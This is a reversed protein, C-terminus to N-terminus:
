LGAGDSCVPQRCVGDQGAGLCLAEASSAPSLLGGLVEQSGGLMAKWTGTSPFARQGPKIEQELPLRRTQPPLLTLM